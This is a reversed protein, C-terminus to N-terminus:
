PILKSRSNLSHFPSFFTQFLINSFHQFFIYFKWVPFIYYIPSSKYFFNYFSIQLLILFFIILIFSFISSFHLFFFFLFFYSSSLFSNFFFCIFLFFLFLYFYMSWYVLLIFSSFLYYLFSCISFCIFRTVFYYFLCPFPSLLFFLLHIFLVFIIVVLFLCFKVM